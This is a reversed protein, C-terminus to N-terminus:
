RSNPGKGITQIMEVDTPLGPTETWGEQTCFHFGTQWSGGAYCNDLSLVIQVNINNLSRLWENFQWGRIPPKGCYFDMIPLSPDKLRGM